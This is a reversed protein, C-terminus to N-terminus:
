MDEEDSDAESESSDDSAYVGVALNDDLTTLANSSTDPATMNVQSSWLVRFSHALSRRIEGQKAAYAAKGQGLADVEMWGERERRDWILAEQELSELVRRKEEKLINLQEKFRMNRARARLYEIWVADQIGSQVDNGEEDADAAMWIWSPKHRGESVVDEGPAKAASSKARDDEFLMTRVDAKALERWQREWSGHGSLELKAARASRYKDALAIIKSENVDLQRRARTNPGQHRVHRNKFTVLRAKIHLQVRLRDLSDHLQALRLREEIDALGPACPELEEVSLQHPVFLPQDEVVDVLSVGDSDKQSAPNLFQAIKLPVCPMYIAQVTRINALRRRLATRKAMLEANQYATGAVVGKRVTAPYKRKLKRQQDEIELLELLMAAPTVEHLSISGEEAARDDEEALQLRIDAESLGTTERYYPDPASPDREYVEAEAIWSAVNEDQLRETFETFVAFQSASEKVADNYQRYLLQGLNVYVRWNAYGFHDELTDHRSGPGMERTSAATESHKPWNREIQEGCVRGVGKMLHLSYQNHGKTKHARFHYKPIAYRLEGEPLEVQLHSPFEQWRRKLHIAWQCAIDYSIVTPTHENRLSLTSAVIYDMNCYREGKQLDGVANPLIFGHRACVAMGVGTAAYGKSFRTNAQNIAAFGTCTSIDEQDAYKLVHERYATDEVYYGWGSGLAPDRADSSVARRKLRFNADI